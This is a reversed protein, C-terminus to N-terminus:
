ELNPSRKAYRHMIIVTSKHKLKFLLYRCHELLLCFVFDGEQPVSEMGESTIKSIPERLASIALISPSSALSDTQDTGSLTRLSLCLLALSSFVM